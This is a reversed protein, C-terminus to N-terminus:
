TINRSIKHSTVSAHVEDKGGGLYSSQLSNYSATIILCVIISLNLVDKSFRGLGYILTLQQKM